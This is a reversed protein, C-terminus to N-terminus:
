EPPSLRAMLDADEGQIRQPRTGIIVYGSGLLHKVPNKAVIDAMLGTRM